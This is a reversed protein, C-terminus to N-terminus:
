RNARGIRENAEESRESVAALFYSLSGKQKGKCPRLADVSHPKNIAPISSRTKHMIFQAHLRQCHYYICKGTGENRTEEGTIGTGKWKGEEKGGGGGLAFLV